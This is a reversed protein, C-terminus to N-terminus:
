DNSTKTAIDSDKYSNVAEIAAVAAKTAMEMDICRSLFSGDPYEQLKQYTSDAIAKAVHEVLLKDM